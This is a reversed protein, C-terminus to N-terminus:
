IGSRIGLVQIELLRNQFAFPIMKRLPM